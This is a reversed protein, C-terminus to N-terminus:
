PSLLPQVLVCFVNACNHLVHNKRPLANRHRESLHTVSEREQLSLPHFTANRRSAQAAFHVRHLAEIIPQQEMATDCSIMRRCKKSM